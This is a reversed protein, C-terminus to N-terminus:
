HSLGHDPGSLSAAVKSKVLHQVVRKGDVDVIQTLGVNAPWQVWNDFDFDSYIEPFATKAQEYL